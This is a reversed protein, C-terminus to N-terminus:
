ENKANRWGPCHKRLLRSVHGPHYSVGFVEKLVIAVRKTTWRDGRIGYAAPGRALLASLQAFQQNNLAPQRGPAPRGHLANVGGGERARKLWQSVAGQTVGLEEAIRQQSWGQQYLGWARIRRRARDDWPDTTSRRPM